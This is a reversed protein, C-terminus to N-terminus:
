VDGVDFLFKPAVVTVRGVDPLPETDVPTFLSLLYRSFLLEVVTPRPVDDDFVVAFLPTTLLTFTFVPVVVFTFVPAVVPLTLVLVLLLVPM